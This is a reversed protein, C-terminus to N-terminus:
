YTRLNESFSVGQYSCKNKLNQKLKFLSRTLVVRVNVIRLHLKKLSKSIPKSNVFWIMWFCSNAITVPFCRHKLSKKFQIRNVKNGSESDHLFPSLLKLFSIESMEWLIIYKKSIWLIRDKKYNARTWTKVKRAFLTSNRM